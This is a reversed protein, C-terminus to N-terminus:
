ITVVAVLIYFDREEKVTSQSLRNINARSFQQIDKQNCAKRFTKPKTM